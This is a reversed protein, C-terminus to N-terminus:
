WRRHITTRSEEIKSEIQVESVEIQVESVRNQAGRLEGGGGSSVSVVGRSSEWVGLHGLPPYTRGVRLGISGARAPAVGASVLIGVKPSPPQPPPPGQALSQCRGLLFRNAAVSM